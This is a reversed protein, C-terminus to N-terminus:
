LHVVKELLLKRFASPTFGSQKKFVRAFHGPDSFGVEFGIQIVKQDTSLLLAKARNMKLRSIFQYPTEGTSQKFLRAFYYVSMGVLDALETIAIPQSMHTQIYQEIKKLRFGSISGQYFAEKQLKFARYCRMLYSMLSIAMHHVHSIEASGNKRLEEVLHLSITCSLADSLSGLEQFVIAQNDTCTYEGCCGNETGLMLPQARKESTECNFQFFFYKSDDSTIDFYAVALVVPNCAFPVDRIKKHINKISLIKDQTDM